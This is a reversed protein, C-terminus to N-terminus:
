ETLQKEARALKEATYLRTLLKERCLGDLEPLEEDSSLELAKQVASEQAEESLNYVKLLHQLENLTTASEVVKSEITHFTADERKTNKLIFIWDKHDKAVKAMDALIAKREPYLLATKLLEQLEKFTKM